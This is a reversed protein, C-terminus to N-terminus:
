TSRLWHLTQQFISVSQATIKSKWLSLQLAWFQKYKYYSKTDQNLVALMAFTRQASYLDIQFYLYRCASKWCSNRNTISWYIKLSACLLRMKIFTSSFCIKFTLCSANQFTRHSQSQVVQVFKTFTEVVVLSRLNKLRLAAYEYIVTSINVYADHSREQVLFSFIYMRFFCLM